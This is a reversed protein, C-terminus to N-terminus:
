TADFQKHRLQRRSTINLKGFIHNLHWEVTRPSIYLQEAIESNTYGDRALTAIQAEQTTLGTNPSHSRALVPEGTARLERRARTAFGDARMQVFSDYATRLQVRAEARRKERRLWEGYVLHARPLYVVFPSRQLHDIATRYKTDASPGDSVLAVARAAMGLATDTGCVQAQQQLEDAADKAISREGCRAAAEVLENLIHTQVGVDDHQRASSAAALAEPYQSLGLHLIAASYLAGDIDFGEGRQEALSITTEVIERCEKEQGRYAALYAWVCGPLPAGTASTIVQSEDLLMAARTFNGYTVAIGSYTQLALPLVTLAGDIRLQELQREALFNYTEIDFVDLCVRHTIDHWRPDATRNEVEAMYASIAEKLKPAAARHGETLRVVLGDLLHDVARPPQSPPPAMKAAKAVASPTNTADTACRGVLISATVAQLYTERSLKSDLHALRAAASLLLAPADAGRSAAFAAKARILEARATLTEDDTAAEVTTILPLAARPLGADLKAEAAAGGRGRAREASHELDDAVEDDDSLTGHSRHWARYDDASPGTIVAALATHAARRDTFSASRYIASRILPHRFRIGDEVTILGEAEAADAADVSIGLRKAAARLWEPRGAPDAAALLLLLLTQRPLASLRRCFSSELAHPNTATALGYGGALEAPTLARHLELLALPNGKAEALLNDKVYEDLPGPLVSMLLSQSEEGNLGALVTKPHGRLEQEAGARRAAFWSSRSRLSDGQWSPSRRCRVRTSGSRMMSSACRQGTTAPRVSCRSFPWVSWCGTPLDGDKLGLSVELARQQPEPLQAVFALLPGCLQQVGAYPFEMELESGCVHLVRFDSAAAAMHSLLATKGIGAEGRIVLVGSQGSRAGALLAAIRDQEERRGVLGAELRAGM